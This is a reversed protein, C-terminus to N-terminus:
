WLPMEAARRRLEARAARHDPFLGDVVSWFSPGHNMHVLHAVEHAVVYDVVAPPFHLLRWNLRIGTKRSCSGWRTRAASLALPPAEVGLRATFHTLRAAFHEHARLRWARELVARPDAGPKLCLTLEAGNWVARNGGGAIRIRVEAGLCPLVLGDAVTLREPRPRERWAALKALVWDGHQRIVAEVADLSARPPAGVILGRHDISLGITRRRGRRFLYAVPQGALLIVRPEGVVRRVPDANLPLEPQLPM